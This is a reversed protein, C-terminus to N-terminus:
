AGKACAKTHLLLAWRSYCLDFVVTLKTSPVAMANFNCQQSFIFWGSSLLWAQTWSNTQDLQNIGARILYWCKAAGV